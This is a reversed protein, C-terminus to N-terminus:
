GTLFLEPKKGCIACLADRTQLEAQPLKQLRIKDWFSPPLSLMPKGLVWLALYRLSEPYLLKNHPLQGRTQQKHM